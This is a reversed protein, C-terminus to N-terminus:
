WTLSYCKLWHEMIQRRTKESYIDEPMLGYRRINEMMHIGYVIKNSFNFGAEMLLIDRLKNILTCGLEKELMFSLGCAWRSLPIGYKMSISTKLAHM